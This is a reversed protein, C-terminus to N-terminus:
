SNTHKNFCYNSSNATDCHSKWPTMSHDSYLVLACFTTFATATVPVFIHFDNETCIKTTLSAKRQLLVLIARTWETCM